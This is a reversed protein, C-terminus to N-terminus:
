VQTSMLAKINDADDTMVLRTGLFRLEVTHGPVNLVSRVWDFFTDHRFHKLAAVLIDLGPGETLIQGAAPRRRSGFQGFPLRSPVVLPGQERHSWKRGHRAGNLALLLLCILLIIIIVTNPSPLTMLLTETTAPMNMSVVPDCNFAFSLM